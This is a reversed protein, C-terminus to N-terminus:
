IELVLHCGDLCSGSFLVSIHIHLLLTYLMLLILFAVVISMAIVIKINKKVLSKRELSFLWKEYDTDKSEDLIKQKVRDNAKLNSVSKEIKEKKLYKEIDM